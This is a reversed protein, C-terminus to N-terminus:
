SLRRRYWAFGGGLAAALATLGVILWIVTSDDENTPPRPASRTRRSRCGPRRTRHPPSRQRSRRSQLTAVVPWRSTTPTRRAAPAAARGAARTPPARAAPLPRPAVRGEAREVRGPEVATAFAHKDASEGSSSPTSRQARPVAALPFAKRETALLVQATVWIPTQDSSASYSYHGDPRACVPSTASRPTSRTAARARRSWDRCRGRRRSPM